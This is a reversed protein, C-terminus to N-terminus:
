DGLGCKAYEARREDQEYRWARLKSSDNRISLAWEKADRFQEHTLKPSKNQKMEGKFDNGMIRYRKGDPTEHAEISKVYESKSDYIKGNMHNLLPEMTDDIVFHGSNKSLGDDEVWGTKVSFFKRPAPM